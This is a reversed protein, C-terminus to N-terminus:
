ECDFSANSMSDVAQGQWGLESAEMWDKQDDLQGYRERVENWSTLMVMWWWGSDNIIVLLRLNLIDEIAVHPTVVELIEDLPLAIICTIVAPLYM